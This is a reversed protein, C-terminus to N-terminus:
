INKEEQFFVVIQLTEWITPCLLIHFGLKEMIAEVGYEDELGIVQSKCDAYDGM